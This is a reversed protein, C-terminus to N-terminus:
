ERYGIRVEEFEDAIIGNGCISDMWGTM